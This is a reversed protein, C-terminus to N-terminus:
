LVYGSSPCITHPASQWMLWIIHPVPSQTPCQRAFSRIQSPIRSTPLNLHLKGENERKQRVQIASIVVFCLLLSLFFLKQILISTSQHSTLPRAASQVIVAM